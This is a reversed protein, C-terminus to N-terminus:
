MSVLVLFFVSILDLLRYGLAQYGSIIVWSGLNAHVGAQFYLGYFGFSGCHGLYFHPYTASSHRNLYVVFVCTDLAEFNRKEFLDRFTFDM